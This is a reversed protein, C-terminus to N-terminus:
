ESINVTIFYNIAEVNSSKHDKTTPLSPLFDSRLHNNHSKM